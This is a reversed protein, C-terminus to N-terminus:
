QSHAAVPALMLIQTHTTIRHHPSSPSTHSLVELGLAQDVLELGVDDAGAALLLRLGRGVNHRQGPGSIALREKGSVRVVRDADPGNGGGLM